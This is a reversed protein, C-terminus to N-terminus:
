PREQDIVLALTAGNGPAVPGAEGELDGSQPTAQGSASIRAGVIVEDFQSLRLQPTMAQSDDLTLTLPLDGVRARTVALPMPPGDVAKAYVFLTDDAGAQYWLSEDLSVNVRIRGAAEAGDEAASGAAPAQSAMGAGAPAASPDEGTTASVDERGQPAPRSGAQKQAAAISQRLQTAEEGNPDLQALAQEWARVAAAFESRQFALLGTLWQTGVHDPDLENAQRILEAPRGALRGNNAAALAQTYAVIVEVDEPALQYAREFATRAQGPQGLAFYSRGLMLWGQVDDPNAELREALREVLAEIPPLDQGGATHVADAGSGDRAQAELRPIIDTEGLYLYLAVSGVPLAVALMAAVWHGGTRASRSSSEPDIDYLLERELDRRASDYQGQDLRGATLDGDLEALQQRFLALNLDDQAVEDGRSRRTLLPPVVFLLALGLLGAALIWFITM